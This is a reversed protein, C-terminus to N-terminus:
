QGVVYEVANTLFVGHPLAGPDRGWFQANVQQGVLSLDPHPNGGLAGAAFANMDIAFSGTCDVVPSPTGGSSVLPTRYNPAAVWKTGGFFPLDGAGSLGYFLMGPKQNPLESASITFGSDDSASPVGEFAIEPVCGASTPTSVGYVHPDDFVWRAFVDALGNTDGQDLNTADSQFAVIKGDASVAPYRSRANPLLEYGSKRSVLHTTGHHLDRLFIGSFGLNVGILNTSTSQFVVHNGDGSLRGYLSVADGIEGAQGVSVLEVVGSAVNAMFVDEFMNTDGPVLDTARSTFVVRTGTHSITADYSDGDAPVGAPTRSVCVNTGLEVDRVIVDRSANADGLYMLSADTHFAVYRGNASVSPAFSPGDSQGWPGVSVRWIQNTQLDREFVDRSNNTDNPVLNDATSDFAVFRGDASLSPRLSEGNATVVGSWITPVKVAGTLMDKVIVDAAMNLDLGGLNTALTQFAVFRGDESISAKTSAGNGWTGIANRSAAVVAGTQRDHVYIDELGNVDGPLLAARTEFAVYRGDGSVAPWSSSDMAQLGNSQLSVRDTM